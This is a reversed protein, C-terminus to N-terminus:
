KKKIEHWGEPVYDDYYHRTGFHQTQDLNNEFVRDARSDYEVASGDNREYTEVGMMSEHRWRQIRDDMSESQSNFSFRRDNEAM